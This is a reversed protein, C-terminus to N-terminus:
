SYSSVSNVSQRDGIEYLNVYEKYGLNLIDDLKERFQKKNFFVTDEGHLLQLDM